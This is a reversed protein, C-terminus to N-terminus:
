KNTLRVIASLGALALPLVLLVMLTPSFKLVNLAYWVTVAYVLTNVTLRLPGPTLSYERGNATVKTGIVLLILGCVFAPVGLLSELATCSLYIVWVFWALTALVAGGGVFWFTAPTVPYKKNGITFHFNTM